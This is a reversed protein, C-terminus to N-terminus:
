AWRIRVQIAVLFLQRRIEKKLAKAVARGRQEATDRHCVFSLADVSEGNLLMDVRVIDARRSGAADYDFSAFGSSLSKVHDYLDGAM